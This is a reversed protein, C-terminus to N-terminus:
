TQSAM